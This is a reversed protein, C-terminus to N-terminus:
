IIQNHLHRRAYVANMPVSAVTFSYTIKLNSSHRFTKDCEDCKFLGEESHTKMHRKLAQSLTYTKHCIKCKFPREKSHNPMHDVMHKTLHHSEAFSQNCIDCDFSEQKVEDEITVESTMFKALSTEDDESCSESKVIADLADLEEEIECKIDEASYEPPEFKIAQANMSMTRESM